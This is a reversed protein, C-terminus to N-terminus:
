CRRTHLDVLEAEDAFYRQLEDNFQYALRKTTKLTYLDLQCLARAEQVCRQEFEEKTLIDTILGLELAERATIEGGQLLLQMAKGQPLYRPLFFALGGSPHLGYKAHSLSFRLDETAFRADAALSIGFFPTVVSGQLAEITIKSLNIIRLIVRQLIHIERSRIVHRQFKVPDKLRNLTIDEGTIEALFRSYGQEGFVDEESIFLLARIKPDSEVMNYLVFYENLAELDSILQFAQGKLKIVAVEGDIYRKVDDNEYEFTLTKKM